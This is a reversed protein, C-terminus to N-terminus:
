RLLFHRSVRARAAMSWYPGLFLRGAHWAGRETDCALSYPQLSRTAFLEDLHQLALQVGQPSELIRKTGFEPFRRRVIDPDVGLDLRKASRLMDHLCLDGCCLVSREVRRTLFVHRCQSFCDFGRFIDDSLVGLDI